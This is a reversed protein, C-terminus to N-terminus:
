TWLFSRVKMLRILMETDEADNNEGRVPRHVTWWDYLFCIEEWIEQRSSWNICQDPREQVFYLRLLNFCAYLMLTDKDYYGPPLGTKVVNYRHRPNFRHQFWYYVKRAVHHPSYFILHPLTESLFYRVPYHSRAHWEWKEWNDFTFFEPKGPVAFLKKLMPKM